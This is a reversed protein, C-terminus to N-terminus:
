YRTVYNDLNKYLHKSLQKKVDDIVVDKKTLLQMQTVELGEYGCIDILKFPNLDMNVNLSLGHYIRGKRVRLGLSAIKKEDVYVGPAKEKRTSNIDYDYLLDIISQEIIYIISKLGINLRKIDILFYMVIQGPGHYTRKGGRDSQVVPISTNEILDYIDGSVGQTIVPNHELVWIEDATKTNRNETFALMSQWCSYYELIGKECFKIM